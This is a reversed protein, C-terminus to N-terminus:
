FFSEPVVIVDGPLVAVDQGKKGADTIEDVRIEIIKEEGSEMRIIRTRNRAAIPTFGGAKSIAEVITINRQMYPYSGPANVQGIIYFNQAKPIYLLDNDALPLNSVQDGGKLLAPLDVRIVVKEADSTEPNLTRIVMAQNGGQEFDVGGARSVADLLRERAKLPYTGPIKVAGLVMYKRSKYDVVTVSVHADLMFQGEALKHSIREEIESTTLNEVLLRGILPFSIYGDGSVRVNSRTLDPEEYVVIDLIDYGGVRYDSLVADASEPHKRLYEAVTFNPTSQIVDKLGSDSEKTERIQKIEALKAREQEGIGKFPDTTVSKVKM